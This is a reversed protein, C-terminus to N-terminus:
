KLWALTKQWGDKAETARYSSRYDAHFAHGADPYIVLESQLAAKNGRSSLELLQNKMRSVSDASISADAGGYLGLMRAKIQHVNDIPHTPTTSSHTGELRGYWAVGAALKPNHEAYLWSIRGGWCFGNIFLADARGGNKLAWAACADLDHMVQADPVKAILESMLKALEGYDNPDGQRIFLEPAIALYGAQAFRRTVDAIYEHVGFIESIVLVVPLDSKGAPAARYAPMQFGDVDIIVEGAVLGQASTKIATQAMLPFAAAAYGVGLM